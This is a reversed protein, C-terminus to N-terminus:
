GATDPASLDYTTIEIEHGNPDHVYISHAIDHDQFEFPLGRAALERQARAFNEANARFAVHRMVPVNRAAAAGTGSPKLPFLALSTTGVGLVAPYDGWAEEHRRELGLIEQYWRVSEAVDHVSLAVHDIGDLVFPQGSQSPRAPM